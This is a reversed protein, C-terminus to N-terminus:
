INIIPNKKNTDLSGALNITDILRRKRKTPLIKQAESKYIDKQNHIKKMWSPYQIPELM